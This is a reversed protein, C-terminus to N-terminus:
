YYRAELYLIGQYGGRPLDPLFIDEIKLELLDQQRGRRNEHSVPTHFLLLSRDAPGFSTTESFPRYMPLGLRGLVHASPIAAGSFADVLAANTDNFYGIVEFARVESPNLNWTITLPMAFHNRSDGGASLDFSVPVARMSITISSRVTASITTSATATTQGASTGALLLTCLLLVFPGLHANESNPLQAFFESM